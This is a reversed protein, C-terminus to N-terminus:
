IITCWRAVISSKVQTDFSPDLFVYSKITKLNQDNDIMEELEDPTMDALSAIFKVSGTLQDSEIIKFSLFGANKISEIILKEEQSIQMNAIFIGGCSLSKAINILATNVLKFECPVARAFAVNFKGEFIQMHEEITMDALYNPKASPVVNITCFSNNECGHSELIEIEKKTGGIVLIKDELNYIPNLSKFKVQFDEPFYHRFCYPVELVLNEAIIKNRLIPLENLARKYWMLLENNEGYKQGLVAIKEEKSLGEFLLQEHPEQEFNVKEVVAVLQCFLAICEPTDDNFAHVSGSFVCLFFLCNFWKKM